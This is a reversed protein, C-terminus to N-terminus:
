LNGESVWTGQSGAVTCYWGKPQGSAPVSNKVHDGVVWAGFNPVANRVVHIVNPFSAITQLASRMAIGQIAGGNCTFNSINKFTNDSILWPGEGSGSVGFTANRISNNACIVDTVRGTYPANIGIRFTDVVNGVCHVRVTQTPGFSIGNNGVAGAASSGKLLNGQVLIDREAHTSISIAGLEHSVEVQNNVISIDGDTANRSADNTSSFVIGNSAPRHIKNGSVLVDRISGAGNGVIIGWGGASGNPDVAQNTIINNSVVAGGQATNFGNTACTVIIGGYFCSDISNGNITISQNCTWIGGKLGDTPYITSFGCNSVVNGSITSNGGPPNQGNAYIGILGYNRVINGVCALRSTSNGTTPNQTGEYGLVIGYRSKTTVDNPVPTIGDELMACVVNSSVSVDQDGNTIGSAQIGVDGNGLCINGTIVMRRTINTAGLGPDSGNCLIDVTNANANKLGVQAGGWLKNNRIICNQSSVVIGSGFKVIECDQITLFNSRECTIGRAYATTVPPPGASSIAVENTGLLKLRSITIGTRSSASSGAFIGNNVTSTSATPQVSIVSTNGEGFFSTNSSVTLVASTNYTGAPLFVSKGAGADLAAQIAATDDAVGNGVAGFDKVSVIESLKSNVSVTQAGTGTALFNLNTSSTITKNVKSSFTLGSSANATAIFQGVTSSVVAGGTTPVLFSGSTIAGGALMTVYDTEDAQLEVPEGNLAANPGNVGFITDTAATAVTVFGPTSTMKVCAYAPISGSARITPTSTM